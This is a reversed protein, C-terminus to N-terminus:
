FEYSSQEILFSMVDYKSQGNILRYMMHDVIEQLAFSGTGIGFATYFSEWQILYFLRKDKTDFFVYTGDNSQAMVYKDSQQLIPSADMPLNKDSQWWLTDEDFAVKMLFDGKEIHLGYEQDFEVLKRYPVEFESQSFGKNLEFFFLIFM